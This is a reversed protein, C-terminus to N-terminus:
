RCPHRFHNFIRQQAIRIKQLPQFRIHRRQHRAILSQQRLRHQMTALHFRRNHRLIFRLLARPRQQIQPVRKSVRNLRLHAIAVPQMALRHRRAAHQRAQQRLPQAAQFRFIRRPHTRQHPLRLQRVRRGHKRKFAPQRMHPM